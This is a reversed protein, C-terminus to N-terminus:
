TTAHLRHSLDYKYPEGRPKHPRRGYPRERDLGLDKASPRDDIGAFGARVIATRVTALASIAVAKTELKPGVALPDTADMKGRGVKSVACVDTLKGGGEHLLSPPWAIPEVEEAIPAGYFRNLDPHDIPTQM